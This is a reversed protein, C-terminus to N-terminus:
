TNNELLGELYGNIKSIIQNYRQEHTSLDFNKPDVNYTHIDRIMELMQLQAYCMKRHIKEWKEEEAEGIKEHSRKYVQLGIEILEVITKSFSIKNKGKEESFKKIEEFLDENLYCTVKQM